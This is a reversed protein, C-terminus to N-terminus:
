WGGRREREKVKRWQDLAAPALTIRPKLSACRERERERDREGERERRGGETEGEMRERERQWKENKTDHKKQASSGSELFSTLAVDTKVPNEKREEVSHTYM